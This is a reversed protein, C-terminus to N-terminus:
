VERRKICSHRCEQLRKQLVQILDIDNLLQQYLAVDCATKGQYYSFSTAIDGRIGFLDLHIDQIDEHFKNINELKDNLRDNLRDNLNIVYGLTVAVLSGFVLFVTMSLILIAVMMNWMKLYQEQNWKIHDVDILETDNDSHIVKINESIFRRKDDPLILYLKCNKSEDTSAM